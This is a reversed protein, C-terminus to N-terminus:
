GNARRHRQDGRITPSKHKFKPNLECLGGIGSATDLCQQLSKFDCLSQGADSFVTCWPSPPRRQGACAGLAFILGILLGVLVPTPRM